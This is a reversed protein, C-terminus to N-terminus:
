EDRCQPMFVAMLLAYGNDHNHELVVKNISVSKLKMFNEIDHFIIRREIKKIVHFPLFQKATIPWLFLM